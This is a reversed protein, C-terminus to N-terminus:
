LALLALLRMNTVTVAQFRNIITQSDIFTDSYAPPVTLMDSYSIQTFFATKPAILMKALITM